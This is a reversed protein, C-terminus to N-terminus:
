RPPVKPAGSIGAWNEVNVTPYGLEEFTPVDPLDPYRTKSTVALGRVLGSKIVPLTGAVTQFGLKAHGGAVLSTGSPGGTIMVPKTKSIDIGAAHFFQRMGIDPTSSGGMSAWTFNEPDKKVDAIVDEPNKYPSDAKVILVNPSYFTMAIFTRDMVNFPLDKVVFKLMTSHAPAEALMTYGDPAAHHVELCGPVGNGGPKNITNVPVGWKKNLYSATLRTSLDTTGGAQVPVIISIARAPYQKQANAQDLMGAFLIISGLLLEAWLWKKTKFM